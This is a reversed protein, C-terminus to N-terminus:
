KTWRPSRASPPAPRINVSIVQTEGSARILGPQVPMHAGSCTSAHRRITSKTWVLLLAFIQRCSPWEPPFPEVLSPQSPLSTGSSAPLQGTIAADSTGQDGTLWRGLAIVRASMSLTRSCNTAATRIPTSAPKSM